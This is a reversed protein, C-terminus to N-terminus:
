DAVDILQTGLLLEEARDDPFHKVAAVLGDSRIYFYTPVGVLHYTEALRMDEDLAVDLALSHRAMYNRVQSASEGTNITLLKIGKQGWDSEQNRLQFLHGRCTPCWTAWFFLIIPGDARFESLVFIRDDLSKLTFDPAPQGDLPNSTGGQPSLTRYILILTVAFILIKVLIKM